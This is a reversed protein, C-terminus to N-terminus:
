ETAETKALLEEAKGAAAADKLIILLRRVSGNVPRGNEM